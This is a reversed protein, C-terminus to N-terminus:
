RRVIVKQDLGFTTPNTTNYNVRAPNIVKTSNNQRTQSNENATISKLRQKPSVANGIASGRNTSAPSQSVNGVNVRSNTKNM